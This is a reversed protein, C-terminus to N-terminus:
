RSAATAAGATSAVSGGRSGCVLRQQSAPVRFHIGHVASRDVSLKVASGVAIAKVAEVANQVHVDATMMRRHLDELAADHTPKM